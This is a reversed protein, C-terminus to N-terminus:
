YHIISSALPASFPDFGIFGRHDGQLDWFDRYIYSATTTLVLTHDTPHTNYASLRISLDRTM